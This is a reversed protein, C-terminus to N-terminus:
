FNNGCIKWESDDYYFYSLDGHDEPEFFVDDDFYLTFSATAQNTSTFEIQLNQFEMIDYDILRQEWILEEDYKYDFNHHFSPHYHLMILDLFDNNFNYRIDELIEEIEMEDADQPSSTDICGLLLFIIPLFSFLIKM